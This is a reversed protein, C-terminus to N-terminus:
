LKKLTSKLLSYHLSRNARKQHMYSRLLGGCFCLFKTGFHQFSVTPLFM